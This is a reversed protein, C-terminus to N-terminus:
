NSPEIEILCWDFDKEKGKVSEFSVRGVYQITDDKLVGHAVLCDELMKAMYSCNSSDLPKKNFFFTFHLDVKEEIFKLSKFCSKTLWLYDEKLKNRNRWHTGAYIKNTSIKVINNVAIKM